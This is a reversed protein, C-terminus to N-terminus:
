TARLPGEPDATSIPDAHRHVLKWAGDERRFTTTVRLVFPTVEDRGGVKAEWQEVELISALDAAVYRAFSEFSAVQGEKFRSSAYDLADSVQDWGRVPPGFPNALTADDRHTFLAKVLEPNGRAFEDAAGHYQEIVQELDM